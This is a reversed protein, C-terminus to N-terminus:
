ILPLYLTSTTHASVDTVEGFWHLSTEGKAPRKIKGEEVSPDRGRREAIGNGIAIMEHRWGMIMGNPDMTLERVWGELEGIKPVMPKEVGNTTGEPHIFVCDGRHLGMEEHSAIVSWDSVGHPDLELVSVLEIVGTDDFRVQATREVANVSQVVAPRKGDESKWIVHDGPRIFVTIFLRLLLSIENGVLM